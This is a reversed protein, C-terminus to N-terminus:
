SFMGLFSLSVLVIVGRWRGYVVAFGSIDGTPWAIIASTFCVGFNWEETWACNPNWVEKGSQELASPFLPSPFSLLEALGGRRSTLAGPARVLSLPLFAASCSQHSLWLLQKGGEWGCLKWLPWYKLEAPWMSPQLHCSVPEARILRQKELLSM